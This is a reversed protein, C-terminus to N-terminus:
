LICLHSDGIKGEDLTEIVEEVKQTLLDVKKTLEEILVFLSKGKIDEM